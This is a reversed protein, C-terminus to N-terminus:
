SFFIPSDKMQIQSYAKLFFFLFCAGQLTTLAAADIGTYDSQEVKHAAIDSLTTSVETGDTDPM